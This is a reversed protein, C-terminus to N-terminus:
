LVMHDLSAPGLTFTHDSHRFLTYQEDDLMVQMQGQEKAHLFLQTLQGSSLRRLQQIAEPEGMVTHGHVSYRTKSGAM